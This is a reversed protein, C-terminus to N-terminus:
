STVTVIWLQGQKTDGGWVISVPDKQLQVRCAMRVANEHNNDHSYDWNTRHWKYRWTRDGAEDVNEISHRASVTSANGNYRSEFVLQTTM